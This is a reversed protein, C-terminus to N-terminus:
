KSKTNNGESLAIMDSLTRELSYSPSWGTDRKMKDYSMSIYPIDNKQMKKSDQVVNFDAGSIQRIHDLIESIAVCTNSSVNYVEGSRGRDILLAIGNAVDRVDIFDRKSAINGLSLELVASSDKTSLAQNIISPIVFDEKQEPGIINSPRLVFVELSDRYHASSILLTQLSKSKGYPNVPLMEAKEDLSEGYNSGYEAASGMLLVRVRKNRGKNIKILSELLGVTGLYNISIFDSHNDSKLIGALNIVKDPDIKELVTHLREHDTISCQYYNELPYTDSFDFEQKIDIGFVTYKDSQSIEHLLYRALFGNVGTVVLREKHM